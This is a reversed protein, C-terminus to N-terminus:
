DYLKKFINFIEPTDEFVHTNKMKSVKRVCEIDESTLELILEEGNPIKTVTKGEKFDVPMIYIPVQSKQGMIVSNTIMTDGIRNSIKAMSNSTCPAVLLFDFKHFQVDGALFPANSNVEFYLKDFNEKIRKYLNYFKLVQQGAVSVYVHIEVNKYKEQIELMTEFTKEIKEGAGCIAWAIKQTTM